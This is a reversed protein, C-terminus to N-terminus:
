RQGALCSGVGCSGIGLRIGRIARSESGIRTLGNSTPLQIQSNTKVNVDRKTRGDAIVAVEIPSEEFRPQLVAVELGQLALHARAASPEGTSVMKKPPPVGDSSSGASIPRSIARRGRITRARDQRGFDREFGVRLRRRELPHFLEALGTDIPHAEAHLRKALLFQPPEPPDMRRGARALRDAFRAGRPDVLM